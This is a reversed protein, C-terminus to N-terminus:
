GIMKLGGGWSYYPISFYLGKLVSNNLPNNLAVLVACFIFFVITRITIITVIFM